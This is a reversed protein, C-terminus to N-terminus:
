SLINRYLSKSKNPLFEPSYGTSHCDEFEQDGVRVLSRMYMRESRAATSVVFTAMM